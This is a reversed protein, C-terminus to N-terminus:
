LCDSIFIYSCPQRQAAGQTLKVGGHGVTRAPTQSFSNSARNTVTYHSSEPNTRGGQKANGVMGHNHLTRKPPYKTALSAPEM